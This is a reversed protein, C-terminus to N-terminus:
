SSIGLTSMVTSLVADEKSNHDIDDDLSMDYLLYRNLLSPLGLRPVRGFLHSHPDLSLLHKRIAERCLHKLKFQLNEEFLVDLGPVKRSVKLNELAAVDILEGAAYMFLLTTKDKYTCSDFLHGYQLANERTANVLNIKAGAQLLSKATNVGFYCSLIYPTNGLNDVLNVDAGASILVDVCSMRDKIVAYILATRGRIRATNVDAGAKTLFDVCKEHGFRTADILPTSKELSEADPDLEINWCLDADKPDYTYSKILGVVCSTQVKNVDAGAKILIEMCEFSGTFAAAMIPECDKKGNVDAGAEILLQTCKSHGKFVAHWLASYGFDNTHNVDAGEDILVGMCEDNGEEAACILPTDGTEHAKNVDAGKQILFEMCEVDGCRTCQLAGYMLPTYGLMQRQWHPYVCIYDDEAEGNVDAGAAVAAKVCELHGNLACKDLVAMLNPTGSRCEKCVGNPEDIYWRIRGPPITKRASCYECVDVMKVRKVIKRLISSVGKVRTGIETM